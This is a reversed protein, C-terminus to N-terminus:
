QSGRAAPPPAPVCSPRTVCRARCAHPTTTVRLPVCRQPRDPRYKPRLCLLSSTAVCPPRPPKTRLGGPWRRSWAAYTICKAKRTKGAPLSAGAVDDEVAEDGSIGMWGHFSTTTQATETAATGHKKGARACSIRAGFYRCLAGPGSDHRQRNAGSKLAPRPRPGQSGILAGVGM